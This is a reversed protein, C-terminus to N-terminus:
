MSFLHSSATVRKIVRPRIRIPSSIVMRIAIRAVRYSMTQIDEAMAFSVRAARAVKNYLPPKAKGGNRLQSPRETRDKPARLGAAPNDHHLGRWVAAECSRRIAALKVAVTGMAYEAVLVKRYTAMDDETATVPSIKQEACWAVSQGTNGRNHEANPQGQYEM